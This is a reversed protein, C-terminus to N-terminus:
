RQAKCDCVTCGADDHRGSYHNCDCYGNQFM